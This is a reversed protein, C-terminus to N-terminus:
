CERLRVAREYGTAHSKQIWKPHFFVSYIHEGEITFSVDDEERTYAQWLVRQQDDDYARYKKKKAEAGSCEYAFEKGPPPPPLVPVPAAGDRPRWATGSSSDSPGQAHWPATPGGPPPPPPPLTRAFPTDTRRTKNSGELHQNMLVATQHHLPENPCVYHVNLWPLGPEHLLGDERNCIWAYALSRIFISFWSDGVEHYQRLTDSWHERVMSLSSEHLVGLCCYPCPVVPCPSGSVGPAAAERTPARARWDGWDDDEEETGDDPNNWVGERHPQTSRDMSLLFRDLFSCDSFVSISGFHLISCHRRLYFACQVTQFARGM